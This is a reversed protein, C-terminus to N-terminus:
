IGIMVFTVSYANTKCKTLMEATLIVSPTREDMMAGGLQQQGCRGIYDVPRLAM